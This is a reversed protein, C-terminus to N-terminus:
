VVTRAAQLPAAAALVHHIMPLFFVEHLVKAQGSKMRTGKGAALIVVSLNPNM